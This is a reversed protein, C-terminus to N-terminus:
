LIEGDQHARRVVGVVAHAVHLELVVDQRKGPHHALPTEEEASERSSATGSEITLTLIAPKVCLTTTVPDEHVHGGGAGGAARLIDRRRLSASCTTSFTVPPM